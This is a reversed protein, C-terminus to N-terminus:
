KLLFIMSGPNEILKRWESCFRAVTAGDVVRHDASFSVTVIEEGILNSKEDFRPLKQMRGIAAICVTDPPIVPHLVRGGLNGINSITITTNQFSEPPLEGMSAQQTIKQLDMAIEFVSKRNVAPINPVVLGAPSDIAVGINHDHRYLLHSSGDQDAEVFKSNLLPYKEMAMSFSKLLLPMYSIKKLTADSNSNLETNILERIKKLQSFKIEDTFGFHPIKLSTKMSKVMAKQIPTLKVIKDVPDYARQTPALFSSLEPFFLIKKSSVEKSSTVENGSEAYKIVDEKLIRGSKGTGSILSLDLNKERALRRVAPTALVSGSTPFEDRSISAPPKSDEVPRTETVSINESSNSDDDSDIDILPSGVKAM